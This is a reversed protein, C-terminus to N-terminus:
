KSEIGIEKIENSRGFGKIAITYGMGKVDIIDVAWEDCRGDPYFISEKVPEDSRARFSLNRPLTYLRGFRGSVKEYLPADGSPNLKFIQYQGKKLNFTMKYNVRDLIAKEQAYKILQSVSRASDNLTLDQFTGRFLPVSLGVLMLIILAVLALEILTFGARETCLPFAPFFHRPSPGRSM